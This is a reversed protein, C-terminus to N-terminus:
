PGDSATIDYLDRFHVHWSRGGRPGFSRAWRYDHVREAASRQVLEAEDTPLYYEWFQPDPSYSRWDIRKHALYAKMDGLYYAALARLALECQADALSPIMAEVWAEAEGKGLKLFPM